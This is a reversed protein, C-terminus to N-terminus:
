QNNKEEEDSSPTESSEEGEQPNEASPREDLSFTSFLEGIEDSIGKLTGIRKSVEEDETDIKDIHIKMQESLDRTKRVVSRFNDILQNIADAVNHLSDGKRLYIKSSLDGSAIERLSREMKFSPGAFQHSYFVGIIM